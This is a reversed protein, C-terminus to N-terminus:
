VAMEKKSIELKLSRESKKFIRQPYLFDSLDNFSSIEIIKRIEQINESSVPLGGKMTLKIGNFQIPNHSGTVMVGGDLGWLMISSNLIPSSSVGTDIIDCGTSLIGRALANKLPESSLRVDRGVSLKQANNRIFFTGIGKGILEVTEETLDEGVIGRIDYARFILPNINNENTM